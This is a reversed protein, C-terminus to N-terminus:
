AADRHNPFQFENASGDQSTTFAYALKEERESARGSVMMAGAMFLILLAYLAGGVILLTM